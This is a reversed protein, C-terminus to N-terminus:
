TAIVVKGITRRSEVLEYATNMTEPTLGNLHSIAIPRLLGEVVLAAEAKLIDGQSQLDHGHLIKSFIWRWTCLLPNRCAPAQM